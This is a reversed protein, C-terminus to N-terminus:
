KPSGCQVGPRRVTRFVLPGNVCTTYVTAAGRRLGELDMISGQYIRYPVRISDKHYGWLRREHLHMSGQLSADLETRPDTLVRSM